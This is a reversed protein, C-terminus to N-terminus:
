EESEELIMDIRGTLTCLVEHFKAGHQYYLNKTERDFATAIDDLIELKGQKDKEVVIQRCIREVIVNTRFIRYAFADTYQSGM